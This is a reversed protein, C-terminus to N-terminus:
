KNERRKQIIKVHTKATLDINFNKKVQAKLFPLTFHDFLVEEYKDSSTYVKLKSLPLAMYNEALEREWNTKYRYKLLYHVFNRYYIISGYLQEFEDLQKQDARTNLNLIDLYKSVVNDAIDSSMDRIAIYKFNSEYVKDWFHLQERWDCYSYVEHIVSSCILTANNGMESLVIDWNDTFVASPLNKEALNLQSKSIDYGILKSGPLIDNIMSLTAGDACGFDVYTHSNSTHPLFFLKDTMAKRMGLNYENIDTFDQM